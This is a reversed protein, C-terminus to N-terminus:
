QLTHTFTNEKDCKKCRIRLTATKDRRSLIRVERHPRVDRESFSFIEGVCRNIIAYWLIPSQCFGCTTESKYIKAM